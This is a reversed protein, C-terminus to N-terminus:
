PKEDAIKNVASKILTSEYGKQLMYRMTKMKKEAVTGQKLSSWKKRVLSEMTQRYTEEELLGLATNINRSSVKKITLEHRIKIKGWKKLRFRGRAFSTAFREENLYDNEILWATVQEVEKKWAGLSYLKQIVEAHSREQYTCYHKLKQQLESLSSM